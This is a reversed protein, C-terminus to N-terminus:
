ATALYRSARERLPPPTQSLLREAIMPAEHDGTERAALARLYEDEWTPKTVL